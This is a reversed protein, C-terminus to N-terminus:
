TEEKKNLQVDILQKLIKNSINKKTEIQILPIKSKDLILKVSTDRLHTYDDKHTKGNLEIVAIPYYNLDCILFDPFRYLELNQNETTIYANLSVQPFIYYQNKYIEILKNYYLIETNTMLKKSIYEKNSDIFRDRYQELKENLVISM